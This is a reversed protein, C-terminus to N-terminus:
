KERDEALIRLENLIDQLTGKIADELVQMMTQQGKLSSALAVDHETNMTRM